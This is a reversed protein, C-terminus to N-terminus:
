NNGEQIVFKFLKGVRPVTLYNFHMWEKTRYKVTLIFSAMPEDIKIDYHTIREEVKISLKKIGNVQVLFSDLPENLLKPKNNLPNILATQLRASNDFCGRALSSDGQQMASFLTQIVKKIADNQTQAKTFLQCFLFAFLFLYKM